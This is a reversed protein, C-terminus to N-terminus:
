TGATLLALTESLMRAVSFSESRKRGEASMQAAQAPNALLRNVADALAQPSDSPVLLGNEGDTVIEPNGGVSTAVCPTGVIQAELLVHSLGETRSSLVFVDAARLYRMADDHEQHGVFLVRDRPALAELEAQQPGDGVIVLKADHGINPLAALAVDVGKVPTLRAISVLLPVDLPLGLEQRLARPDHEHLNPDAVSNYIVNLKHPPVGWGQVLRAVHQSPMVITDAHRVAYRYYSRLTALKLPLRATQYAEVSLPTQGTRDAQEWSADAVVRLVIRRAFPRLVPLPLAYGIVFLVDSERALTVAERTLTAFRQVRGGKRSIRTVPYGYDNQTSEGYTLVRVHHGHAQLYPLVEQLYTSFGGLEPHFIGSLVGIKM